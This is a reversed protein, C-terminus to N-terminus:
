SPTTNSTSILFQDFALKTTNCLIRIAYTKGAELEYGSGIKGWTFDATSQIFPYNFTTINDTDTIPARSYAATTDDAEVVMVQNKNMM